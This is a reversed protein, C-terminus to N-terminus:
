ALRGEAKRKLLMERQSITIHQNYDVDRLVHQAVDSPHLYDGNENKVLNPMGEKDGYQGHWILELAKEYAVMKAYIEQSAEFLVVEDPSLEIMTPSAKLDTRAKRPDYSQRNMNEESSLTPIPKM